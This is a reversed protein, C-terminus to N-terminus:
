ECVVLFITARTSIAIEIVCVICGLLRFQLAISILPSGRIAYILFVVNYTCTRRVPAAALRWLPKEVTSPGRSPLNVENKRGQSLSTWLSLLWGPEFNSMFVNISFSKNQQGDICTPLDVQVGISIMLLSLSDQVVPEPFSVCCGLSQHFLPM